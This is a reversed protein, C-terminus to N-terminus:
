IFFFWTQYASHSMETDTEFINLRSFFDRYWDRFNQDRFFTETDTEIFKKPRTVWHDSFELRDDIAWILGEISQPNELIQFYAKQRLQNLTSKKQCDHCFAWKWINNFVLPSVNCTPPKSAFLIIARWTIGRAERSYWHSPFVLNKKPMMMM